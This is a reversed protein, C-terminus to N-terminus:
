AISIVSSVTQIFTLVLLISAAVVSITTWPTNFYNQRLNAMRKNWRSNCHDILNQCIASYYFHHPDVMLGSGLSNILRSVDKSDGLNNEVIGCDVLLEVDKATNVFCDLVAVYDSVYQVEPPFECQEFAIINRMAVETQDWVTLKPVELVGDTFQIALLDRSEGVKFSIGAQHLETMTPSTGYTGLVGDQSKLMIPLILLTRLLDLLHKVELQHSRIKEENEEETGEIAMVLNDVFFYHSLFVMSTRKTLELDQSLEELIFFPLQNELLLMDPWLDWLLNPKGYVCDNEDVLDNYYCRLLVEIIFAADVLVIRALDDSGFKITDIYYSRLREEKDKIRLIYNNLSLRSRGLFDHLYRKKHEEMPLLDKKGHHLPGISVLKPTYAEERKHRLRQPARYICRMPSMRSVQYLEQGRSDELSANQNEIDNSDELVINNQDEIDNAAAQSYGRPRIRGESGRQSFGFMM